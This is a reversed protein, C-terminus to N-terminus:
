VPWHRCVGMCGDLWVNTYLIHMHMYVTNSICEGGGGGCAKGECVGM